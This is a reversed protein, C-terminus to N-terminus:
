MRESYIEELLEDIKDAENLAGALSALDTLPRVGQQKVLDRFSKRNHFEHSGLLIPEIDQISEIHLHEVRDGYPDIVARGTIRVPKRLSREIESEQDDDFSCIVPSGLPPIIRCRHDEPKFDVMELIGEVIITDTRPAQIRQRVKDREKPTFRAKIARRKALRKPVMFQLGSVAKREFVAGLGDLSNLVGADIVKKNGNCLSEVAFAVEVIAETGATLTQDIPIQPRALVFALVTSGERFPLVELTCEVKAKATFPGPRLSKLGELAEAQRNVACQIQNCITTLDPIAIRGPAVGPGSVKVKLVPEINQRRTM